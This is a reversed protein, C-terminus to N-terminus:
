RPQRQSRNAAKIDATGSVSSTPSQRTPLMLTARKASILWPPAPRKTNVAVLLQGQEDAM